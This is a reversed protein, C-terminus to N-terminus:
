FKAARKAKTKHFAENLHGIIESAILLIEKAAFGAKRLDKYFSRAIIRAIREPNQVSQLVCADLTQAAGYEGGAAKGAAASVYRSALMQRMHVFEVARSVLACHARFLEAECRGQGGHSASIYGIVHDNVKLPASLKSSVAAGNGSESGPELADEWLGEHYGEEVAGPETELNSAAHLFGNRSYKARVQMTVRDEALWTIVCRQLGLGEALMRAAAQLLGDVDEHFEFLRDFGAFIKSPANLSRADTKGNAVFM